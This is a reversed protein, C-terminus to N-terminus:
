RHGHVERVNYAFRRAYRDYYFGQRGLEKLTEEDVTPVDELAFTYIVGHGTPEITEPTKSRMLRFLLDYGVIFRHTAPNGSRSSQVDKSELITIVEDETLRPQVDEGLLKIKEEISM